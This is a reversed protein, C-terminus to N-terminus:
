RPRGTSARRPPYAGHRAGWLGVLGLPLMPVLVGFPNAVATAGSVALCVALAGYLHWRVRGPVRGEILFMTTVAVDDGRATRAIAGLLAWTWVVLSAFFCVLATVVAPDDFADAGLAAPVGTLAFCLDGVWAAM